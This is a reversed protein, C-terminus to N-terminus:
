LMASNNNTYNSVQAAQDGIPAWQLDATTVSWYLNFSSSLCKNYVCVCVCVCMCEGKSHLYLVNPDESGKPAKPNRKCKVKLRFDLMTDATPEPFPTVDEVVDLDFNGM